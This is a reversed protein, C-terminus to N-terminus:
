RSGERMANFQEMGHWGAYCTQVFVLLGTEFDPARRLCEGLVVDTGSEIRRRTDAWETSRMFAAPGSISGDEYTFQGVTTTM